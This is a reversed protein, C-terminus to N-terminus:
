GRTSRAEALRRDCSRWGTWGSSPMPDPLSGALRLIEMTYLPANMVPAM